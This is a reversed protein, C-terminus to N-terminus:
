LIVVKNYDKTIWGHIEKNNLFGHFGISFTSSNRSYVWMSFNMENAWKKWENWISIKRSSPRGYASFIDNYRCDLNRIYYGEKTTPTVVYFREGNIDIYKPMKGM